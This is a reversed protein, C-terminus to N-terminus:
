ILLVFSRILSAWRCESSGCREWPFELFPGTITPPFSPASNPAASVRWVRCFLVGPEYVSWRLSDSTEKRVQQASVCRGGTGRVPLARLRWRPRKRAKRWSRELWFWRAPMTVANRVIGALFFLCKYHFRGNKLNSKSASLKHLPKM